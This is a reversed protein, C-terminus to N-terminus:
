RGTRRPQAAPADVRMYIFLRDDGYADPPMLPEGAIPIIGRGDKGLSEAIMQEVWLGFSDIPPTPILTM